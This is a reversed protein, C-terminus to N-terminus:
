FRLEFHSRPIAQAHFARTGQACRPEPPKKDLVSRSALQTLLRRSVFNQKRFERPREVPTPVIENSLGLHHLAAPDLPFGQQGVYKGNIKPCAGLSDRPVIKDIHHRLQRTHYERAEREWSQERPDPKATRRWFAWDFNALNV